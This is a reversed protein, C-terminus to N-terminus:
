LNLEFFFSLISFLLGLISFLLRAAQRDHVDYIVAIIYCYFSIHALIIM